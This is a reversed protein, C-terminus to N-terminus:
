VKYYKSIKKEKYKDKPDIITVKENFDISKMLKKIVKKRGMLIPEVIGDEKCIQAAKLVDLQDSEGFILKKIRSKARRHILRILKTDTGIRSDLTEIYRDWDEIPERAVGSDIAAKAVAPPVETILRPDFPKPIIYDKGFVLRTAEGYAVNVQEPVPKKALNALAVVAAKKM